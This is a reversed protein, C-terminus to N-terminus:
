RVDVGDKSKYFYFIFRSTWAVVAIYSLPGKKRVRDASHKSEVTRNWKEFISIGFVVKNKSQM